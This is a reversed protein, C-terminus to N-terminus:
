LLVRVHRRDDVRRLVFAARAGRHDLQPHLSAWKECFYRSTPCGPLVYASLRKQPQRHRTFIDETQNEKECYLNEAMDLSAKM